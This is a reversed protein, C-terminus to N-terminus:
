PVQQGDYYRLTSNINGIPYATTIEGTPVGTSSVGFGANDSGAWNNSEFNGATATSSGILTEDLWVRVRGAAINFEWTLTYDGPAISGLAVEVATADADPLAVGDGARARFVGDANNFGVWAGVGGAGLEFIVGNPAAGITIDVAFVADDDRDYAFGNGQVNNEDINGDPATTLGTVVLTQELDVTKFNADGSNLAATISNGVLDEIAGAPYTVEYNEAYELNSSPNITITNGSVTVEPSAATYSANGTADDTDTLTITGSLVINEDFTLVINSNRAVQITNDNPTLSTLTPNVLDIETSFSYDGAGIGAFDNNNGDRLVGNDITVEYTQGQELIPTPDITVTSGVISVQADGIPITRNDSGDTTDTLIINGAFATVNEDFTLVIDTGVNLNAAGNVPAFGIINPAEQDTINETVTDFATLATLANNQGTITGGNLDLSQVSATTAGVDGAVFVHRFVLSRSSSASPEYVFSRATADILGNLTPTGTVIVPQSFRLRIDANNGVLQPGTILTPAESIFPASTATTPPSPNLSDLNNFALVKRNSLAPDALLQTAGSAITLAVVDGQDGVQKNIDENPIVDIQGARVQITTTTGNDTVDIDTGLLNVTGGPVTVTKIGGSVASIFQVFGGNTTIVSLTTDTFSLQVDGGGSASINAIAGNSFQITGLAGNPVTIVTDKALSVGAGIM